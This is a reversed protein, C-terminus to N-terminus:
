AKFTEEKMNMQNAPSHKKLIGIGAGLKECMSTLGKSEEDRNLNRGPNV